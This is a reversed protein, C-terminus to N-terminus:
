DLWDPENPVIDTTNDGLTIRSVGFVRRAYDVQREGARAPEGIEAGLLMLRRGYPPVHEGRLDYSAVMICQRKVFRKRFRRTGLGTVVIALLPLVSGIATRTTGSTAVHAGSLVAGYGAGQLVFGLLLACMGVVGDARDRAQAVAEVALFPEMGLGGVYSRRMIQIPTALLGRAVLFAGALDFGIGLVFLDEYSLVHAV